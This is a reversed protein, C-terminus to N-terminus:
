PATDGWAFLWDSGLNTGNPYDGVPTPSNCVIYLSGIALYGYQGLVNAAPWDGTILPISDLLLDGFQSQIRLIWYNAMLNYTVTLILTLPSGDVTLAVTQTQQNPVQQWPIVQLTPLTTSM